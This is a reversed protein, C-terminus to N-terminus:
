QNNINPNAKDITNIAVAAVRIEPQILFYEHIPQTPKIAISTTAM